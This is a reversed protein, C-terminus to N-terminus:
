LIPCLIPYVFVMGYLVMCFWVICLIIDWMEFLYWITSDCM